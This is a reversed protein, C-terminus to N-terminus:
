TNPKRPCANDFDMSGNSIGKSRLYKPIILHQQIMLEMYSFKSLSLNCKWKLISKSLRLSLSWWLGHIFSAKIEKDTIVGDIMVQLGGKRLLLFYSHYLLICDSIMVVGICIWLGSAHINYSKVSDFDWNNNCIIYM